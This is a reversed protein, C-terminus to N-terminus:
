KRDLIVVTGYKQLKKWIKELKKGYKEWNKKKNEEFINALPPRPSPPIKEASFIKRVIAELILTFFNKESM